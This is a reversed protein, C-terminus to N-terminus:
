QGRDPARLDLIREAPERSNHAIMELLDLDLQRPVIRMIPIRIGEEFITRASQSM